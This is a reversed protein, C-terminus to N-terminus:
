NPLYNIGPYFSFSHQRSGPKLDDSVSLLGSISCFNAQNKERFNM